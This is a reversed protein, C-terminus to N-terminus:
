ISKTLVELQKAPNGETFIGKMRKFIDETREPNFKEKYLEIVFQHGVVFCCTMPSLNSFNFNHTSEIISIVDIPISGTVKLKEALKSNIHVQSAPYGNVLDQSKLHAGIQLSMQDDNGLEHLISALCLKEKNPTTGWENGDAILCSIMATLYSHDYPFRSNNTTFSGILNSLITKESNLEKVLRNSIDNIKKTQLENIGLQEM